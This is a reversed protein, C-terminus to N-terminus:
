SDPTTLTVVCCVCVYAGVSAALVHHLLTHHFRAAFRRPYRRICRQQLERGVGLLIRPFTWRRTLELKLYVLCITTGEESALGDNLWLNHRRSVGGTELALRAGIIGLNTFRKGHSARALSIEVDTRWRSERSSHPSPSVGIHTYGSSCQGPVAGHSPNRGRYWARVILMPQAPGLDASPTESSAVKSHIRFLGVISIGHSATRCLM